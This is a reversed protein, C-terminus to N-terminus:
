GSCRSWTSRSGAFYMVPLALFISLPISAAILLTLRLRAPLVAARLDGAGRGAPGLQDVVQDLSFRIADGQMFITRSRSGALASKLRRM